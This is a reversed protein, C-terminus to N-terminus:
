IEQRSTVAGTRRNLDPVSKSHLILPPDPGPSPSTYMGVAVVKSHRRRSCYYEIVDKSYRKLSHLEDSDVDGCCATM